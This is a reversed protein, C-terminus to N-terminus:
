AHKLTRGQGILSSVMQVLDEGVLGAGLSSANSQAGDVVYLIGRALRRPNPLGARRCLSELHQMARDRHERIVVWAPHSSDSLEAATNMFPCGRHNESPLQSAIFRAWGNIQAIPDRPHEAALWEWRAESQASVANLWEAVLAQRGEFHRYFAMKTTSAEAVIRDLTVTHTAEKHFLKAAAELIRDRPSKTREM